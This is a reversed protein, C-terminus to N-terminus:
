QQLAAWEMALRGRRTTRQPAPGWKEVVKALLEKERGKHEALLANVDQVKHPARVEYIEVLQERVHKATVRNRPSVLGRLTTRMTDAATDMVGKAVREKIPEKELWRSFAKAGSACPKCVWVAKTYEQAGVWRRREVAAVVFVRFCSSVCHARRVMHDLAERLEPLSRRTLSPTANFLAQRSLCARCSGYRCARGPPAGSDTLQRDTRVCPQVSPRVSARRPRLDRRM